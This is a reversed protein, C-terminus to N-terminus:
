YLGLNRLGLRVVHADTAWLCKKTSNPSPTRLLGPPALGDRLRLKGIENRLRGIGAPGPPAQQLPGGAAAKPPRNNLDNQIKTVKNLVAVATMPPFLDQEDDETPPSKLKDLTKKFSRYRKGLNVESFEGLM